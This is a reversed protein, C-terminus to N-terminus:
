VKNCTIADKLLVFETDDLAYPLTVLYCENEIQIFTTAEIFISGNFMTFVFDTATDTYTGSPGYIWTYTALETTDIENTFLTITGMAVEELSSLKEDTAIKILLVSSSTSFASPDASIVKTCSELNHTMAFLELTTLNDLYQEQTQAFTPVSLALFIVVAVMMKMMKKM